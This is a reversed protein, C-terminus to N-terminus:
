GPMPWQVDGRRTHRRVHCRTCLTVLNSLANNPHARGIGNGDVHHVHLITDRPDHVGCDQCRFGDRKLCVLRNGGFWHKDHHRRGRRRHPTDERIRTYPLVNVIRWARSNKKVVAILSRGLAEAVQRYSQGARLLRKAQEEDERTWPSSRRNSVKWVRLNRFAVAQRSRNLHAGTETYTLGSRLLAEGLRDDDATWRRACHRTRFGQKVSAM